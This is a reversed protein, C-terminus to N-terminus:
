VFTTNAGRKVHWAAAPSPPLEIDENSLRGVESDAAAVAAYRLPLNGAHRHFGDDHDTIDRRLDAVSCARSHRTSRRTTTAPSVRTQTLITDRARCRCSSRHSSIRTARAVRRLNNRCTSSNRSRYGM